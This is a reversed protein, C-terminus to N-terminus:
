HDGGGGTGTSKTVREGHRKEEKRSLFQVEERTANSPPSGGGGKSYIRGRKKQNGSNIKGGRGKSRRLLGHM